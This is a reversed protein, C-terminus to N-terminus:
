WTSARRNDIVPGISREVSHSLLVTTLISNEFLIRLTAFMVTCEQLPSPRGAKIPTQGAALESGLWM